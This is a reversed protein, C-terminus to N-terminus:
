VAELLAHDAGIECVREDQFEFRLHFPDGPEWANKFPYEPNGPIAKSVSALCGGEDLPYALDRAGIKVHKVGV